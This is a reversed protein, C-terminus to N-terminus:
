VCLSSSFEHRGSNLCTDGAHSSTVDMLIWRADVTAERERKREDIMISAFERFSTKRSPIIIIVNAIIIPACELIWILNYFFEIAM